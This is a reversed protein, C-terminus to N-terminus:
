LTINWTNNYCQSPKRCKRGTDMLMPIFATLIVCTALSAEFSQIIKGTFTASVMLLLLWPIRAKWTEFVGVKLYPKHTTTIAAMSEIDETNEAQIVDMIDDITIIGVLRDESDVVPMVNIDYKQFLRAVEEQDDTTKCSIITTKLIDKITDNPNACIIDKLHMFGKLKRQPDLVFCINVTEYYHMEKKLTEIAEQITLNEKLEAFEVTMISGASNEPYNLLKNIDNRTDPTCQRLLRTVVNSPMENLLDVADDTHMENLLNVAEKDGLLSLVETEQDVPLYTFVEAAKDKNMLGFIKIIEKSDIDELLEAVDSSNLNNIEVQAEKYKKEDLLKELDQLM